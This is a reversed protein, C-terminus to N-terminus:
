HSEDCSSDPSRVTSPRSTALLGQNQSTDSDSAKSPSVLHTPPPVVSCHPSLAQTSQVLSTVPQSDHTLQNAGSINQAAAVPDGQPLGHNVNILLTLPSVIMGHQSKSLQSPPPSSPPVGIANSTDAQPPKPSPPRRLRWPLHLFYKLM